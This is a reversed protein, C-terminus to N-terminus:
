LLPSIISPDFTQILSVLHPHGPSPFNVLLVRLKRTDFHGQALAEFQELLVSNLLTELAYIFILQM